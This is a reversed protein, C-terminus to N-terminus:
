MNQLALTPVGTWQRMSHGPFMPKAGCLHMLWLVNCTGHGLVYTLDAVWPLEVGYVSIHLWNCGRGKCWVM